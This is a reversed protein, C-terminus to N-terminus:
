FSDTPSSLQNQLCCEGNANTDGDVFSYSGGMFYLVDNLITALSCKTVIWREFLRIHEGRMNIAFCMDGTAPPVTSRCLVAFLVLSFRWTTFSSHMGSITSEQLRLSAFLFRAFSKVV